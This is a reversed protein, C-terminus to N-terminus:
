VWKQPLDLDCSGAENISLSTVSTDHQHEGDTNLFEADMDLTRKLDFAKIGLVSDVSVNSQNCRKVPAFSNISKLRAEVRTLDEESVLDTKNLLLRDAFAVQEVAENEAGEAKEEDLHQEIHKADVLTVIGDLTAFERVESDGM